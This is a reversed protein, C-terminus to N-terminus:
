AAAVAGAQGAHEVDIGVKAERVHARMGGDPRPTM